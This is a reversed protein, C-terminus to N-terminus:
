IPKSFATRAAFEAEFAFVAEIKVAFPNLFGRKQGFFSHKGNSARWPLLSYFFPAKDLAQTILRQHNTM